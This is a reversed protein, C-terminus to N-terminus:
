LAASRAGWYRGGPLEKFQGDEFVLRKPTRVERELGPSRPPTAGGADEVDEREAADAPAGWATPGQGAGLVVEPHGAGEWSDEEGAGPRRTPTASGHEEADEREATKASAGWATPGQGTGLVDKPHGAGECSDEDGTGQDAGRAAETATAREGYPM